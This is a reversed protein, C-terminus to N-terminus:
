RSVDWRGVELSLLQRRLKVHRSAAPNWRSQVLQIIQWVLDPVEHHDDPRSAHHDPAAGAGLVISHDQFIPSRPDDLLFTYRTLSSLFVALVLRYTGVFGGCVHM